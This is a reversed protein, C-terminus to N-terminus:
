ELDYQIFLSLKAPTTAHPLVPSYQVSCIRYQMCFMVRVIRAETRLVVCFFKVDGCLMIYFTNMLDVPMFSTRGCQDRTLHVSVILTRKNPFRLRLLSCSFLVSLSKQTFLRYTTARAQAASCAQQSSHKSQGSLCKLTPAFLFLYCISLNYLSAFRNSLAHRWVYAEIWSRM